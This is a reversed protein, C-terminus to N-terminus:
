GDEESNILAQNYRMLAEIEREISAERQDPDRLHAVRNYVAAAMTTKKAIARLRKQKAKQNKSYLYSGEDNEQVMGSERPEPQLREVWQAIKSLLAENVNAPLSELDPFMPGKGLILWDASVGTFRLMAATADFGPKRLGSYYDRLSPYPMGSERSFQKLKMEKSLIMKKVRRKIADDEPTPAKAKNAM